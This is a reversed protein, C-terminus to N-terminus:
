QIENAKFYKDKEVCDWIDSGSPLGLNNVYPAIDICGFGYENATRIWNWYQGDDPILVVKRGDLCSLDIAGKLMQSGGCALWIRGERGNAIDTATMLVATKEGEVVWVKSDPFVQLLHQGFFCQKIRFQTEDFKYSPAKHMWWVPLTDGNNGKLRHGSRDYAIAKGTRVRAGDFQYYICEGDAGTGIRYRECAIRLADQSLINAFARFLSNNSRLPEFTLKYTMVVRKDEISKSNTYLLPGSKVDERDLHPYRIYGCSQERDCRGYIAGAMVSPDSTLVYPVFRMKGCQPCREKRGGKRLQWKYVKM